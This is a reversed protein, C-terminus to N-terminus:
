SSAAPKAHRGSARGAFAALGCYTTVTEASTTDRRMQLVATLEFKRPLDGSMFGCSDGAEKAIAVISDREVVEFPYQM